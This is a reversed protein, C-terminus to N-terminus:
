SNIPIVIMFLDVEHEWKWEVGDKNIAWRGSNPPDGRSVRSFGRNEPDLRTTEPTYFDHRIQM